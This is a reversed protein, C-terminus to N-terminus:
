TDCQTRVHAITPKTGCKASAAIPSTEVEFGNASKQFSVSVPTTNIAKEGVIYAHLDGIDPPVSTLASIQSSTMLNHAAEATLYAISQNSSGTEALCISGSMKQVARRTMQAKQRRKDDQSAVEPSPEAGTPNNKCKSCGNSGYTDGDTRVGAAM